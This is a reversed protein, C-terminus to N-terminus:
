LSLTKMDIDPIIAKNEYKTKEIAPTLLWPLNAEFYLALHNEWRNFTLDFGFDTNLTELFVEQENMLDITKLIEKENSACIPFFGCYAVMQQKANVSEVHLGQCRYPDIGWADFFERIAAERMKINKAYNFAVISEKGRDELGMYLSKTRETEVQASVTGTTFNM